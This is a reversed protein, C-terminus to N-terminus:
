SRKVPIIGAAYGLVVLLVGLAGLGVKDLTTMNTFSWHAAATPQEPRAQTQSTLPVSQGSQVIPQAVGQNAAEAKAKAQAKAQDELQQLYQNEQTAIAQARAKEAQQRAEEAQQRDIQRMKDIQAQRLQEDQQQQERQLAREEAMQHQQIQQPTPQAFALACWITILLRCSRVVRKM